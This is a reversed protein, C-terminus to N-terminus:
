VNWDIRGEINENIFGFHDIDSFAGYKGLPKTNSLGSPHSSISTKHKETNILKLKNLAHSGWLVFVVNDKNDSIYKIIDDTTKEWDKMHSCKENERTTLSTNLMLCGQVAWSELDGHKPQEKIHGFKILNKFINNLSSPIKIGKPVSFSLGTAQPKNKEMKFYPDQGIIVVKVSSLPTMHFARFVDDPYPVINIKDKMTRKLTKRIKKLETKTEEKTFFDNWDNMPVVLNIKNNPYRSKWSLPDRLFAM